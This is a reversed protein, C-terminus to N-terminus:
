ATRGAADATALDAQMHGAAGCNWLRPRAVDEDAGHFTWAPDDPQYVGAGDQRITTTVGCSCRVRLAPWATDPANM